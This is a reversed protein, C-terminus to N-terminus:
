KEIWALIHTNLLKLSSLVTIPLKGIPALRRSIPPALTIRYTQIHGKPFLKGLKIPRVGRVDPNKPNDFTFDYWLIAGGPKLWDWIKAALDEQFSDSLISSFVVSQFVIDVSQPAIQAKLADGVMLEISHPLIERARSAREELLELGCLNQPEFGLRVFDLLNGGSGCGLDVLRLDKLPMKANKMLIQATLYQREAWAIQVEPRCFSYLDDANRRSYRQRIADVEHGNKDDQIMAMKM